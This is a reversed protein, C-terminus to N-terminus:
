LGVIAAFDLEALASSAKDVRLVCDSLHVCPEVLELPGRTSLARHRVHQHMAMSPPASPDTGHTRATRTRTRTHSTRTHARAHTHTNTHPKQTLAHMRAHMCAAHNHAHTHTITHTHTHAHTRARARVHSHAHAHAHARTHAVRVHNALHACYSCCARRRELSGQNARGESLSAAANCSRWTRTQRLRSYQM